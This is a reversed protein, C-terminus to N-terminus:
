RPTIVVGAGGVFGVRSSAWAEKEEGGDQIFLHVRTLTVPAEATVLKRGVGIVARVKRCRGAFGDGARLTM